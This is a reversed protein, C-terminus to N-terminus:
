RVEATRRRWRPVVLTSRRGVSGLPLCVGWTRVSVCWVFPAMYTACLVDALVGLAPLAVLVVFARLAANAGLGVLAVLAVLVALVVLVVLAVLAELAVLAWPAAPAQPVPLVLSCTRHTHLM